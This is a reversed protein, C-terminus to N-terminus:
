LIFEGEMAVVRGSNMIYPGNSICSSFLEDSGRQLLCCLNIESHEETFVCCTSSLTRTNSLWQTIVLFYGSLWSCQAITHSCRQWLRFSWSSHKKIFIQSMAWWIDFLVPSSYSSCVCCVGHTHINVSSLGAVSVFPGERRTQLPEKDWNLHVFFNPFGLPPPPTSTRKEVLHRYTDNWCTLIDRTTQVNLWMRGWSPTLNKLLLCWVNTKKFTKEAM